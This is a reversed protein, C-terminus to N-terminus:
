PGRGHLHNVQVYGADKGIYPDFFVNQAHAQDLSKGDMNNNFPLPIGLSGIEITQEIPNSVEFSLILDGGINKWSRIVKLPIGGLTPSINAAALATGSADLAIVEKRDKASSYTSWTTEGQKR